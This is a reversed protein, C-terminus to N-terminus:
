VSCGACRGAGANSNAGANYRNHVTARRDSPDGSQTITASNSGNNVSTAETRASVSALAAMLVAALVVSQRQILKMHVDEVIVHSPRPPVRGIATGSAQNALPRVM